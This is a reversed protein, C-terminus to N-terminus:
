IHILSLNEVTDQAAFAVALGIFGLGMVLGTVNIGFESAATLIVLAWLAVGSLRYIFNELGEDLEINDFIKRIYLKAVGILPIGIILIIFGSVPGASVLDGACTFTFELNEPINDLCSM